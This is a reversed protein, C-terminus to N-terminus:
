TKCVYHYLILPQDLTCIYRSLFVLYFSKPTLFIAVSIIYKGDLLFSDLALMGKLFFFFDRTM